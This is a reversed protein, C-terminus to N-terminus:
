PQRRKESESKRRSAKEKARSGEWQRRSEAWQAAAVDFVKEPVDSWIADYIEEGDRQQRAVETFLEALIHIQEDESLSRWQELIRERIQAYEDEAIIEPQGGASAPIEQSVDQGLQGEGEITM